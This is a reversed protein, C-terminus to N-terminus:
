EDELWGLHIHSEKCLCICDTNCLFFTRARGLKLIATFPSRSKSAWFLADMWGDYFHEM